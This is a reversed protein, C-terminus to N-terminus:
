KKKLGILWDITTKLNFLRDDEDCTQRYGIIYAITKMM